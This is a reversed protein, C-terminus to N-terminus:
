RDLAEHRLKFFRKRLRIGEPEKLLVYISITLAYILLAVVTQAVLMFLTHPAIHRHLYYLVLTMPLCTILPWTYADWLFWWIRVKLIHCLHSPLFFICVFAKPIATGLAVGWVGYYHLLIISLVINAGAEALRVWGLTLHKAIGYLVKPSALQAFQLTYPIALLALLGFAWAYQSGVWVEIASKGLMLMGVCAPFAVFACARNGVIFVRRLRGLEGTADFHSSMPTFIISSSQIVRNVYQIFKTAIAFPTIAATSLFMGIITNGVTSTLGGAVTSYFTTTSYKMIDKFTAFDSFKPIFRLPLRRHGIFIYVIYSAFSLLVAVLSISVLGLGRRLVIEILILRLVGTIAKTFNEWWFEQIGSLVGLFVDGVFQLAFICGVMFFLLRATPQLAPSIHFISAVRWSVAFTVLMLFISTCTFVFLITNVYRTLNEYDRMAYFRSVYRMVASGLGFDFINFYGAFSFVLAWLGYQEDGLRHLILPTLIISTVVNVGLSFWTTGVNKLARSRFNL